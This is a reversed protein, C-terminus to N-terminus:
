SIITRFCTSFSTRFKGVLLLFQTKSSKVKIKFYFCKESKCFNRTIKNAKHFVDTMKINKACMFFM